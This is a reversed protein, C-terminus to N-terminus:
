FSYVKEMTCGNELAWKRFNEIKEDCDDSKPLGEM